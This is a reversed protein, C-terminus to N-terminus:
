EPGDAEISFTLSAVNKSVFIPSFKFRVYLARVQGPALTGIDKSMGWDSEVIGAPATEENALNQPETGAGEKIAISWYDKYNAIALVDDSADPNEPDRIPIGPAPKAQFHVVVRLARSNANKNKVGIIRYYTKGVASEAGFVENFLNELITTRSEPLVTASFPGGLSKDGDDAGAPNGTTYVLDLDANALPM